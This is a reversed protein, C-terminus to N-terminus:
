LPSKISSVEPLQDARAEPESYQFHLNLPRLREYSYGVERPAQILDFHHLHLAGQAHLFLANRDNTCPGRPKM